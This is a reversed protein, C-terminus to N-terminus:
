GVPKALRLLDTGFGHADYLARARANGPFVALTLLHCRRERAWTEAFALLASGIGRGEAEAVVALDAIHANARGTFYDRTKQLHVFGIRQGADDEAIHFFSNSPSEDFKHLLEDHIGKACEGRPRWSPLPFGVFRDTLGLIFAEDGSTALRIRCPPASM